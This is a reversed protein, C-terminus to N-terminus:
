KPISNDSFIHTESCALPRVLYQLTDLNKPMCLPFIVCYQDSLQCVSHNKVIKDSFTHYLKPSRAESDTIKYTNNFM